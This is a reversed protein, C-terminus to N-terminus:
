FFKFFQDIPIRSDPLSVNLFGFFVIYIFLSLGIAYLLHLLRHHGAILVQGAYILLFFSVLFGIMPILLACAGVLVFILLAKGHASVASSTSAVQDPHQYSRTLVVVLYAISMLTMALALGRLLVSSDYSYSFAEWTLFVSLLSASIAFVIDKQKSHSM